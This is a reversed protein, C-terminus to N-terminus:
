SGSQKSLFTVTSIRFGVNKLARTAAITDFSTIRVNVVVYRAEPDFIASAPDLWDINALANRAAVSPDGQGNFAVVQFQMVGVANNMSGLGTSRPLPKQRDASPQSRPPSVARNNPAPSSSHQTPPPGQNNFGASPSNQPQIYGRNDFADFHSNQTQTFAQNRSPIYPPSNGHAATKDFFDTTIAVCLILVEVMFLSFIPIAAVMTQRSRRREERSMKARDNMYEWMLYGFVIIVVVVALGKGLSEPCDKPLLAIPLVCIAAVIGRRFIKGLLDSLYAQWGPFRYTRFRWIILIIAAVIAVLQCASGVTLLLWPMKALWLVFAATVAALNTLWLFRIPTKHILTWFFGAVGLFPVFVSSSSFGRANFTQPAATPVGSELGSFAPPPLEQDFLSGRSDGLPALEAAVDIKAIGIRGGCKKCKMQKGGLEDPVRYHQTCHPCSVRLSM